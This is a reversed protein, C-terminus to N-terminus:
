FRRNPVTCGSVNSRFFGLRFREERADRHVHRLWVLTSPSQHVANRHRQSHPRAWHGMSELRAIRAGRSGIADGRPVACTGCWGLTPLIMFREFALVHWPEMRTILRPTVDPNHELFFNYGDAFARALTQIELPLLTFDRQSSEVIEFLAVDLDSQVGSDGVVEAYRGLAKIYTDELQWFHDESQAWASGFMVAADSEGRIHPVGWQDRHIVVQKALSSAYIPGALCVLVLLSGLLEIFQRSRM